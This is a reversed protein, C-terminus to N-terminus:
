CIKKVKSKAFKIWKHMVQKVDETPLCNKRDLEDAYFQGIKYGDFLECTAIPVNNKQIFVILCDKNIVKNIYGAQVICQHLIEAQKDWDNIDTPIFIKYGDISTNLLILEKIREFYKIQLNKREVLKRAKELDQSAKLAKNHAIMFYKPYRWYSDKIDKDLYKIMSIYDDYRRLFEYLKLDIYTQHKNYYDYLDFTFNSEKNLTKNFYTSKKVRVFDKYDELNVKPHKVLYSIDHLSFDAGYFKCEKMKQIYKKATDKKLKYFRKDLAIKYFGLSIVFEVEKHEKWIKLLDLVFQNSIKDKSIKELTYKFDPYKNTICLKDIERFFGRDYPGKINVWPECWDDPFDFDVTYGYVGLNINRCFTKGNEFKRVVDIHQYHKRCAAEYTLCIEGDINQFYSYFDAYQYSM